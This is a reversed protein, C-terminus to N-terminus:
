MENIQNDCYTLHVGMMEDILVLNLFKFFIHKGQSSFEPNVGNVVQM